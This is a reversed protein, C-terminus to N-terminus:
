RFDDPIELTINGIKAGRLEDLIMNAAREMDVEGGSIVFGRKKGIKELIEYGKLPAIDGDLKYRACLEDAYNDRLYDCLSYALLETNMIEDRIAGTFALRVAVEQDEFKPPLIGPTDLLEADGKIRLWQKGRTVGPKDGTKTSAKGILRNILSSKGVNPIGVMMIKLTRNRGKEKERDIKDQILARAEALVTNIGMGTTCSIPIVKLGQAAYWEIWLRTRKKDALDSKNLVLLRPKNKIIDDFNPNRGSFPIRADLIEVVVDILKLNDEIMRRTKAMHGPYWQLNQM